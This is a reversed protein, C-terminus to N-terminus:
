SYKLLIYISFSFLGKKLTDIETYLLVVLAGRRNCPLTNLQEFSSIFFILLGLQWM